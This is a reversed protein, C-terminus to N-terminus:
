QCDIIRCQTAFSHSSTSMHKEHSWNQFMQSNRFCWLWVSSQTSDNDFAWKSEWQCLVSSLKYLWYLCCLLSVPIHKELHALNCQNEIFHPDCSRTKLFFILKYIWQSTVMFNNTKMVPITDRPIFEGHIKFPLYFIINAHPGSYIDM